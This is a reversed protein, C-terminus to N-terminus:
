TVAQKIKFQVHDPALYFLVGPNGPSIHFSKKRVLNHDSDYLTFGPGDNIKIIEVVDVPISLHEFHEIGSILEAIRDDGPNIALVKQVVRVLSLAAEVERKPKHVFEFMARM